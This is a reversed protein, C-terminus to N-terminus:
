VVLGAHETDATELPILSWDRSAQFTLAGKYGAAENADQFIQLIDGRMADPLGERTRLILDFRKGRVLGDLQLDGLRTLSVELVFRTAEEGEGGGAGGGSDRRLFLRLQQIQQGDFFPMPLLRWDNGAADTLRTMQTLENGLRSLLDGQGARELLRAAQGGMLSNAWSGPNGGTLATLFFLMSSTLRPGAQPVAPAPGQQSMLGQAEPADLSRLIELAYDLAPWRYALSKPDSAPPPAEAAIDFASAPLELVLRTGAPLSAKIDLTLAGFGTQVQPQGAATTGTVFGTVSVGGATQVGTPNGTAPLSSLPGQTQGAPTAAGAQPGSPSVLTAAAGPTQIGAATGPPTVQLVTLQLTGGPHLHPGQLPGPAAPPSAAVGQNALSAAPTVGAGSQPGQVFARITQGLALVDVTGAAQGAAAQSAGGGTGPAVLVNLQPVLSQVQLTVQSGNPLKASTALPLTGADTRILVQGSENAGLVVGQLVAGPALLGTAPPPNAVTGPVSAAPAAPAAPLTPAQAVPQAPPAGTPAAPAPAPAPPPTASPSAKLQPVHGDVQLVAIHLQSGSSRIQLTVQSGTPLQARTAVALTGLDTRVLVQGRESRGVVEGRVFSGNSLQLAAPPPDAITGPVGSAPAASNTPTLLASTLFVNSM